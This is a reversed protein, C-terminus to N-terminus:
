AHQRHLSGRGGPELKRYRDSVTGAAPVAWGERQTTARCAAAVRGIRDLSCFCCGARDGVGLSERNEDGIREEFTIVGRLSRGALSRNRRVRQNITLRRSGRVEEAEEAEEAKQVEEIEELTEM